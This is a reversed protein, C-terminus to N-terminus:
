NIKVNLENKPSIIWLKAIFHPYNEINQVCLLSIHRCFDIEDDSAGSRSLCM